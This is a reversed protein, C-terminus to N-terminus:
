LRSVNLTSILADQLVKSVNIGAKDAERNLWNPLTVNRRVAKTDYKRKYEDLDIDVLSVISKGEGAFTSNEISISSLDSASNLQGGNTEVEIALLGIADRAMTIADAFNAKYEGECNSETLINLDPVEILINTDVDTFIVPYITKM